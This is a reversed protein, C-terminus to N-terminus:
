RSGTRGAGRQWVSRFHIGCEYSPLAITRLHTVNLLEWKWHGGIREIVLAKATDM